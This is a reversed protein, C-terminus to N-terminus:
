KYTVKYDDLLWYPDQYILKQTVIVEKSTVNNDTLTGNLTVIAVNVYEEESIVVSYDESDISLNSFLDRNSDQELSKILDEIEPQFNDTSKEILGYLYQTTEGYNSYSFVNDLATTAATKELKTSNTDNIIIESLDAQNISGSSSNNGLMSLITLMVLIIAIGVVILIVIIHQKIYEIM